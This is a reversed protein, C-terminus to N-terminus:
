ESTPISPVARKAVPDWRPITGDWEDLPACHWSWNAGPNPRGPLSRRGNTWQLAAWPEADRPWWPFLRDLVARVFGDPPAFDTGLATTIDGTHILLEDMGMAIWGGADAIGAPHYARADPPAARAVDALVLMLVRMTWVLEDIDAKPRVGVAIRRFSTARSALQHAYALSCLHELTERCTWDSGAAKASWDAAASRALVQSCLETTAVLLDPEPDV